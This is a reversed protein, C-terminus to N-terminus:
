NAFHVVGSGFHLNCGWQRWRRLRRLRAHHGGQLHAVQGAATFDGVALVSAHMINV